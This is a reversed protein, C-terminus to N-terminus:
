GLRKTFIVKREVSNGIIAQCVRYIENVDITQNMNEIFDKLNDYKEDNFCVDICKYWETNEYSNTGEVAMKFLAYLIADFALFSNLIDKSYKQNQLKVYSENFSKGVKIEIVNSGTGFLLGKDEQEEALRLNIFPTGQLSYHQVATNTIGLLEGKKYNFIYNKEIYSPNFEEHWGIELNTNSIIYYTIEITELSQCYKRDFFLITTSELIFPNIEIFESHISTKIKCFMKVSEKELLNFMLSSTLLHKVTFEIKDADIIKSSLVEISFEIDEKYYSIDDSNKCLVPKSYIKNM